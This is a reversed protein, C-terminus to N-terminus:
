VIKNQADITQILNEAIKYKILTKIKMLLQHEKFLIPKGLELLKKAAAGDPNRTVARVKYTGGAILARAVSGGQKGTAGFVTVLNDSM